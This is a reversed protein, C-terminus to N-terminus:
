GGQRVGVRGGLDDGSDRQSAEAEVPALDRRGLASAIRGVRDADLLDDGQEIGALRVASTAL